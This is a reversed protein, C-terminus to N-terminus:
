AGGGADRLRALRRGIEVRAADLDLARGGVVGAVENRFRDVRVREDLVVALAMQLEGVARRARDAGEGQDTMVGALAVALDRAARDLVELAHDLAETM